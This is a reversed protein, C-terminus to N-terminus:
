RHLFFTILLFLGIIMAFAYHYVYGSQVHRVMASVWGIARATGNVLIGDIARVDGFKWLLNGFRRAGGAFVTQYFEDFGYKRALVTYAARFRQQVRDPLRPDRIYFLWALGFGALALFFPLTQLGHFVMRLEALGGDGRFVSGLERLVDHEPRVAISGGFFKGFLMPEIYIWGAVLSPIALMILPITVVAPSEHLHKRTHEDMRPKGYFTLFLLRFSYFATVFVGCLVLVWAFTAGPLKSHHVAEIIMDKSFFGATGPFGILALTGIWATIFTAPMYKKLGGMRTMDQEHHMAIIVSGAGLFLLAKFFAHTM